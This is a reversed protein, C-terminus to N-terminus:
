QDHHSLLPDDFHHDGCRHRDFDPRISTYYRNDESDEVAPDYGWLFRISFVIGMDSM